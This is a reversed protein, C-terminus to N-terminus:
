VNRRWLVYVLPLFAALTLYPALALREGGLERARTPGSGFFRELEARVSGVDNESYVKGGILEAAPELRATLAAEAAYGAEAVGTTYIREGENWIRVVVVRIRPRRQEFPRSLPTHVETIEGDTLVV